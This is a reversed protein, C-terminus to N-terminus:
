PKVGEFEDTVPFKEAFGIAKRAEATGYFAPFVLVKLLMVMGTGLIGSREARHLMTEVDNESLRTVPVFRRSFVIPWGYDVLVLMIKLGLRTLFPMRSMSYDVRALWQDAVHVAGLAFHPGGAPIMGRGVALLIRAQRRSLTRFAM